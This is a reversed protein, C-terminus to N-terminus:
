DSIYAKLLLFLFIAIEKLIITKNPTFAYQSALWIDLICGETFTNLPDWDNVM